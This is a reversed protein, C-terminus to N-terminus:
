GIRSWTRASEATRQAGESKTRLEAHAAEGDARQAKVEAALADIRDFMGGRGSIQEDIRTLLVRLTPQRPM